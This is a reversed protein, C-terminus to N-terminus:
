GGKTEVVGDGVIRGVVPVLPRWHTPTYYVYMRGDPTFWMRGDRKLPGESRPGSFDDIKTDVIIGAPATDIPQWDM